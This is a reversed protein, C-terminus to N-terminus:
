QWESCVVCLVVCLFCNECIILTLGVGGGGGKLPSGNVASYVSYLVSFFDCIILTFGRGGRGGGGRLMRIM